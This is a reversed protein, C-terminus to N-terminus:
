RGPWDGRLFKRPQRLAFRLLSTPQPPAAEDSRRAHPPRGNRLWAIADRVGRHPGIEHFAAYGNPRYQGIERDMAAFLRGTEDPGAADLAARLLGVLWRERGSLRNLLADLLEDAPLRYLNRDRLGSLIQIVQYRDADVTLEPADLARRATEAAILWNTNMDDGPFRTADVFDQLAPEVRRNDLFQYGEARRRSFYYAGFSKPSIGIIVSPTPVVTITAATFFTAAAAFFDPYPSQYLGGIADFTAVFERKLVFHQANYDYRHRFALVSKALERAYAPMLSFPGWDNPIFDCQVSAFYGTHGAWLVDPWCYHYGALYVIDPGNPSLHPKVTASFGPVLVDDDGLMHIYDGTAHALAARWNETVPVPEARRVYKIRDDRLGTVYTRYDEKSANDSVIIEFDLGDQSLISDITDKLLDLRDKSPILFSVKM